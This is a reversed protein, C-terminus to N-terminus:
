RDRARPATRAGARHGYCLTKTTSPGAHTSFQFEWWSAGRHLGQGCGGVEFGIDPWRRAGGRLCSARSDRVGVVRRRALDLREGLAPRTATTSSCVTRRGPLSSVVAMRKLFNRQAARRDGSRPAKGARMLSKRARRASHAIEAGLWGVDFWAKPDRAESVARAARRSMLLDVHEGVADQAPKLAALYAKVRRRAHLPGVLETLYRLRKLRKRVRHQGDEDLEEFRAPM